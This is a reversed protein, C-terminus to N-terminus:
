PYETPGPYPARLIRDGSAMETPDSPGNGLHASAATDAWPWGRGCDSDKPGTTQAEGPGPCPLQPWPRVRGSALLEVSIARPRQKPGTPGGHPHELRHERTSGPEWIGPGSQQGIRTTVTAATWKTNIHALDGALHKMLKENKM